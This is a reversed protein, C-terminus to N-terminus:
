GSNMAEKGVKTCQFYKKIQKQEKVCECSEKYSIAQQLRPSVIKM